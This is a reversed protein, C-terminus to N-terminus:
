NSDSLAVVIGNRRYSEHHYRCFTFYNTGVYYLISYYPITDIAGLLAVSLVCRILSFLVYFEYVTFPLQIRQVGDM